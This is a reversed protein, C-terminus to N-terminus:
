GLVDTMVRRWNGGMIKDIEGHGDAVLQLKKCSTAVIQLIQRRRAEFRIDGIPMQFDRRTTCTAGTYCMLAVPLGAESYCWHLAVHLLYFMCKSETKGLKYCQLM